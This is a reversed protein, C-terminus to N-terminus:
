TTKGHSGDVMQPQLPVTYHHDHNYAQHTLVYTKIFDLPMSALILLQMSKSNLVKLDSICPEM